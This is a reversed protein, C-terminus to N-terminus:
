SGSISSSAYILLLSVDLLKKLSATLHNLEHQKQDEPLQLGNAGVTIWMGLSNALMRLENLFKTWTRVRAKTTLGKAHQVLDPIESDGMNAFGEVHADRELRGRLKQFARSSVCFVPVAAAIQAYDRLDKDPNFGEEDAARAAEDDLRAVCFICMLVFNIIIM